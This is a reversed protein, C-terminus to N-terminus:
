ATQLSAESDAEDEKAANWCFEAGFMTVLGWILKVIPAGTGMTSFASIGEIAYCGVIVVGTMMYGGMEANHAEKARVHALRIADESPKPARYNKIRDARAIRVEASVKRLAKSEVYTIAITILLAAYFNPDLLAINRLPQKPKAKAEYPFLFGFLQQTSDLLDGLHILNTLQAGDDIGPKPFFKRNEVAVGGPSNPFKCYIAETSLLVGLFAMTYALYKGGKSADTAWEINRSISALPKLIYAIWPDDNKGKSIGPSKATQKSQAATTQAVAPPQYTRTNQGNNNTKTKTLAM